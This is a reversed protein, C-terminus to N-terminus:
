SIRCCLRALENTISNRAIKLLNQKGYAVSDKYIGIEFVKENNERKVEFAYKTEDLIHNSGADLEM